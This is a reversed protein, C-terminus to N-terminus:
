KKIWRPKWGEPKRRIIDHATSKPISFIRAIQSITYGQTETDAMAWMVEERKEALYPELKIMTIQKIELVVLIGYKENSTIWM